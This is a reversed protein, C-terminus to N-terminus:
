TPISLATGSAIMSLYELNRRYLCRQYLNPSAGEALIFYCVLTFMFFYMGNSADSARSGRNARACPLPTSVKISLSIAMTRVNIARVPASARRAKRQPNAFNTKLAPSAFFLSSPFFRIIQPRIARKTIIDTQPIMPQNWLSKPRGTVVPPPVGAPLMLGM